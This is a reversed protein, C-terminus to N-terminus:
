APVSSKLLALLEDVPVVAIASSVDSNAYPILLDNNHILAGCSYVVNPVYGERESGTARLIPEKLKGIVKRPDALDLLAAGICYQRVPGVGHTLLIWGEPTEIPSGCNGIQVAEWPETPAMLFDATEWFHINDSSMIFLNEGDIRSIMMFKGDIRRPFLAMGKNKACKGNLTIVRFRLFDRTQILEPVIRFGNYATVTAYYAAEHNEEIFRVFRADEIGKSEIESVPFIVRESLDHTSHFQVEYNANALWRVDQIARRLTGIPTGGNSKSADLIAAELEDFSFEDGLRGLIAESKENLGDMEGLKRTFNPKDYTPNRIGEPTEVFEGVPDFLIQNDATIKGGRFEISSIHGEGTSRFSLIFRLEGPALGTQDPHPVISPNFFAAAQISYEHTFYAGLLLKREVSLVAGKPLFEIIREFNNRFISKVNKHRSAFDVLVQDLLSNVETEPLALTRKIVAKNRKKGGPFFPKTIVRTPDPSFKDSLRRVSLTVNSSM